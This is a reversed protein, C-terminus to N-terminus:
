WREKEDWEEGEKGPDGEKRDYALGRRRVRAKSM